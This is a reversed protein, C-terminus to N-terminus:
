RDWWTRLPLLMSPPVIFPKSVVGGRNFEREFEPLMFEGARCWGECRYAHDGYATVLFMFRGRKETERIVLNFNGVRPTFASCNSGLNGHAKAAQHTITDGFPLGLILSASYQGEVTRIEEELTRVVGHHNQLRFRKARALRQRAVREARRVLVEPLRIEEMPEWSGEPHQARVDRMLALAQQADAREFPNGHQFVLKFLRRHTEDVPVAANM